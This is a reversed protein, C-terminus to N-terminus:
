AASSTAQLEKKAIKKQQLKIAMKHLWQTLKMCKTPDYFQGEACKDLHPCTTCPITSVLKMSVKVDLRIPRPTKRVYKVEKEEETKKEEEEKEEEPLRDVLATLRYTKRGRINVLERYILRKKALRLAIRSGDRSDIGLMKWLDQQLLGEEGAEIILKLAKKELESLTVQSNTTSSM